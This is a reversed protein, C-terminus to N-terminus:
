NGVKIRLTNSKIGPTHATLKINGKKESARVAVIARGKWTRTQPTYYPESEGPDGNGSALISGQGDASFCIERDADTVVNGDKDIIEAIVFCIDQGDNNIETRDPTLRISGPKGATKLVVSEM